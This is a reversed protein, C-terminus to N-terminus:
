VITMDTELAASLSLEGTILSILDSEVAGWKDFTFLINYYSQNQMTKKTRLVYYTTRGWLIITSAETFPGKIRNVKTTSPASGKTTSEAYLSM